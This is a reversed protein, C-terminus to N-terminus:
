PRSNTASKATSQPMDSWRDMNWHTLCMRRGDATSAQTDRGCVQVQPRGPHTLTDISMVYGCAAKPKALAGLGTDVNMVVHLVTCSVQVTGNIIAGIVRSIM